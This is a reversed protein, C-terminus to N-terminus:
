PAPLVGRIRHILAAYEHDALTVRNINFENRQWGEWIPQGWRPDTHYRPVLHWHLHPSSNGLCEYNMHDPQLASRIAQAAQRMDQMFLTYEDESLEELATAHRPDFILLCYGRFRQDRFLYLTSTSLAAIEIRYDNTAQRPLCLSCNRGVRMDNWHPQVSPDTQM